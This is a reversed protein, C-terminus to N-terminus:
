SKPAAPATAQPAAMVPLKPMKRVDMPTACARWEEAWWNGAKECNKKPQVYVMQITLAGAVGVALFVMFLLTIRNLLFRIM